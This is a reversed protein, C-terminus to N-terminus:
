CSCRVRGAHNSYELSEASKHVLMRWRTSFNMAPPAAKQAQKPIYMANLMRLVEMMYLVLYMAACLLFWMLLSSPSADAAPVSDLGSPSCTCDWGSM